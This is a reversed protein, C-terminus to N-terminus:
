RRTPLEWFAEFSSMTTGAEEPAPALDEGDLTFGVFALCMEDTTNEGWTVDKPPTNPNEPNTVSNDYTATLQFRTGFTAALPEKFYYTSQWRFDWNPVNVLCRTANGLSTEINMSTGLLHMHPTIAHLHVDTPLFPIGAPLGATVTHHSDGAPIRFSQNVLPLTLYRKQVPVRSYRLGVSTVDPSPAGGRASYHVQMVVRAGKPLQIGVGNPLTQPANGPAWGGLWATIANGDSINFRPGGFCTYGLGPEANDLAVSSGNTDIYLLVHHVLLRNGPKVEVASVWRDETLNTPLVFCRYDDGRAFNPTYSAPMAMVLDPAGAEWDNSFSRPAPMQSKSGEPAGSSVWRDITEVDAQPLTRVSAYEACGSAAHWPPMRRAMVEERVRLRMPYVNEYTTLPFPAIGGDRHCTQCNDQLIRVVAGSFTPATRQAPAGEAPGSGSIPRIPPATSSAAEATAHSAISAVGSSAEQAALPFEFSAVAVLCLTALSFPLRTPSM